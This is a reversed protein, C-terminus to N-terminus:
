TAWRRAQTLLLYMTVKVEYSCSALASEATIVQWVLKGLLKVYVSSITRPQILKQKKEQPEAPM